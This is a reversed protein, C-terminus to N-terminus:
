LVYYQPIGQNIKDVSFNVSEQPGEQIYVL